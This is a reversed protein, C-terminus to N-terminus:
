PAVRGGAIVVVRDAHALAGPRHAIALTTRGGAVEQLVAALRAEAGPDVAATAEDLVLIRPDGVLARAVTLLQREGRSLETASRDLAVPLGVRVLARAAAEADGGLNELVTGPFVVVDQPVYGVSRRLDALALRDVPCGDITVRGRDPDRFRLLLSALTSKGAGTAGVVGLREGPPVVLDLDSFVPQGPEYAFTVGEFRIEGAGAPWPAPVLPDRITPTRDLLEVVRSAAVRARELTSLHISLRQIPAFLQRVYGLGLVIMGPTAEGRAVAAAGLGLTAVLGLTRVATLANFYWVPQLEAYAARSRVEAALSESRDAAWGTRDAVWLVPLARVLEAIWGTLEANATRVAEFRPPALRRFLWLLLLWPPLVALVVPAIPPAEIALVAATGFLLVLDGPLALLVESFLVRLAETDGQIRSVLKGAPNHDHWGAEFTLLRDFLRVRVDALALQAATELQARAVWTALLGGLVVALIAIARRELGALDGAPVDVDIAQAVLWPGTLALGSALLSATAGTIVRPLHSRFATALRVLPSVAGQYGFRM